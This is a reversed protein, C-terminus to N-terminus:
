QEKSIDKLSNIIMPLKVRPIGIREAFAAIVEAQEQPKDIKDIINKFQGLDLKDMFKSVDSKLKNPEVMENESIEGNQKMIDYLEAWDEDGLEPTKQGYEIGRSASGFEDEQVPQNEKNYRKIAANYMKKINRLTPVGDYEMNARSIVEVEPENKYVSKQTIKLKGNVYEIPYYVYPEEWTGSRDVVPIPDGDSDVASAILQNLGNIFREIKPNNLSKKVNNDEDVIKVVDDKGMKSKINPIDESKAIFNTEVLSKKIRINSM